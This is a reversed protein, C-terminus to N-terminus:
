SLIAPTSKGTAKGDLFISAGAPESTVNITSGAQVLEFTASAQKGGTVTIEKTQSVYGAKAVTVDYKGPQM